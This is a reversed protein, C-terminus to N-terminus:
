QSLFSGILNLLSPWFLPLYISIGILFIGLSIRNKIVLQLIGTIFCLIMAPIFFHFDSPNNYYSQLNTYYWGNEPVNHILILIPQFFWPLFLASLIMVGGWFGRKKFIAIVGLIFFAIMPLLLIKMTEPSCSYYNAISTVDNNWTIGQLANKSSAYATKAFISLAPLFLGMFIFILGKGTKHEHLLMRTGVCILIVMPILLNRISVEPVNYWDAIINPQFTQYGWSLFWPLGLGCFFLIAALITSKRLSLIFSSFIFTIQFLLIGKFTTASFGYFSAMVEFSSKTPDAVIANYAHKVPSIGLPLLLGMGIWIIGSFTHKKTTLVIGAVIIVVQPLLTIKLLGPEINYFQSLLNVKWGVANGITGNYFSGIIFPFCTAVLLSAIGWHINKKWILSSIGLFFLIVLPIVLPKAIELSIGYMNALFELNFQDLIQNPPVGFLLYCCTWIAALIILIHASENLAKKGGIIAIFILLPLVSTIAWSILHMWGLATFILFLRAGWKLTPHKWLEQKRETQTQKIKQFWVFLEQRYQHALTIAITVLLFWLVLLASSM